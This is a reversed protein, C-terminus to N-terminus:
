KDYKSKENGHKFNGTIKALYLQIEYDNGTDLLRELKQFQKGSITKINMNKWFIQAKGNKLLKWSFPTEDKLINRKDEM